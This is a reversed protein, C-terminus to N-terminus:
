FPPWHLGLAKSLFVAMQRRTLTMDPCYMPPSTNCGATIGSAALAEIYQFAPDSTPVDNFTATAPAPGVQRHWFVRIGKFAYDTGTPLTVQFTYFDAAQSRTIGSGPYPERLDVTIDVAEGHSAIGPTGTSYVSSLLNGNPSPSGTTDDYWKLLQAKVEDNGNDYFFVRWHDIHAGQPLSLPAEYTVYTPDLNMYYGEALSVCCYWSGTYQGTRGVGVFQAAPIWLDIGDQTGFEDVAAPAPQATASPVGCVLFLFSGVLAAIRSKM